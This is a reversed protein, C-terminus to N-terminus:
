KIEIKDVLMELLNKVNEQAEAETQSETFKQWQTLIEKDKLDRVANELDLRKELDVETKAKLVDDVFDKTFELVKDNIKQTEVLKETRNLEKQTNFYQIGLVLNGAVLLLIVSGLILNPKTINKLNNRM